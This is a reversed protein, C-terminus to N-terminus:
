GAKATELKRRADTLESTTRSLRLALERMVQIALKPFDSMLGLFHEKKIKLVVLEDNARVTATRPVDCLIAIEGIVANEKAQAVVIEGADTEVVIDAIGKVVVYAADGVEGQRFVNQGKSYTMRDSAFALLKLKGPDIAAFLPIRRLLDVEEMLTAM